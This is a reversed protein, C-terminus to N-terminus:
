TTFLTAVNEASYDSLYPADSAAALYFFARYDQKFFDIWGGLCKDIVSDAFLTTIYSVQAEADYQEAVFLSNEGKFGHRISIEGIVINPLTYVFLAPSALGQQVQANYRLDTDISSNANTLFIGAKDAASDSNFETASILYEAALFGLKSLNDMKHFKPYDIALQKFAARAFDAFENHQGDFVYSGDVVIRNASISCSRLLKPSTSM